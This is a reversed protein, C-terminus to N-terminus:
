FSCASPHLYYVNYADTRYPQTYSPTVNVINDRGTWWDVQVLIQYNNGAAGTVRNTGLDTVNQLREVLPTSSVGAIFQWPSWTYIQTWTTTRTNRAWVNYRVWQGNDYPGVIPGYLGSAQMTSASESVTMTRTAKDCSVDASVSVGYGGITLNPANNAVAAAPSAAVLGTAMAASLCSAVGLVLRRAPGPRDTASTATSPTSHFIRAIASM